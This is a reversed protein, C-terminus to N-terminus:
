ADVPGNDQVSKVIVNRGDGVVVGDTHVFGDFLEDVEELALGKTEIFLFYIIICIVVNWGANISYYRWGGINDIAIPTTYTNVFGFAYCAM